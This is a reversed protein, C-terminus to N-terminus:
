TIGSNELTIQAIILGRRYARVTSRLLKDFKNRYIVFEWKLASGRERSGRHNVFAREKLRMEIWQKCTVLEENWYPKFSKFHKQVPKTCDFNPVSDNMERILTDCFSDYVLDVNNQTERCLEIRNILELFAARSVNSDM